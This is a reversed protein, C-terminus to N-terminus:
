SRGKARTWIVLGATALHEARALTPEANYNILDFRASIRLGARSGLRRTYALVQELQLLETPGAWSLSRDARLPGIDSYSRIVGSVLPVMIRYSLTQEADIDYELQASGSLPVFFTVFDRSQNSGYKQDRYTLTPSLGLGGYLRLDNSATAVFRVHTLQVALRHQQGNAELEVAREPQLTYRGATILLTTRARVTEYSYGSVMGFGAGGYHLPSVGADREQAGFLGGLLIFRHRGGGATQAHTAAPDLWTLLAISVMGLVIRAANM